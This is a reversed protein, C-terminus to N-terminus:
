LRRPKSRAKKMKTRTAELTLLKQELDVLHTVATIGGASQGYQKMARVFDAFTSPLKEVVSPAISRWEAELHETNDNDMNKGKDPTYPAVEVPLRKRPGVPLMVLRKDLLTAKNATACICHTKSPCPLFEEGGFTGGHCLAATPSTHQSEYTGWNNCNMERGTPGTVGSHAIHAM